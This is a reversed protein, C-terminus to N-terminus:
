QRSTQIHKQTKMQTYYKKIQTNKHKHTNTHTHQSISNTYTHNQTDNEKESNTSSHITKTTLKTKYITTHSQSNTHKLRQANM